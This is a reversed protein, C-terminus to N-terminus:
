WLSCLAKMGGAEASRWSRSPRGAEGIGVAVEKCVLGCLWGCCVICMAAGLVQLKELEKIFEQSLVDVRTSFQQGAPLGPPATAPAAPQSMNSAACLQLLPTCSRSCRCGFEHSLLLYCAAAGAAAFKM